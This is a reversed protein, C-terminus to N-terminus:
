QTISKVMFVSYGNQEGKMYAVNGKKLVVDSDNGSIREEKYYDVWENFTNIGNTISFLIRMGNMEEVIGNFGSNSQSALGIETIHGNQNLFATVYLNNSLQVQYEPIGNTTMLKENMIELQGRNFYESEIIITPDNSAINFVRKFEEFSYFLYPVTSVEEVPEPDYYGEDKDTLVPIDTLRNYQIDSFGGEGEGIHLIAGKKYQFVHFYEYNSSGSITTVSIELVGDKNLDKFHVTGYEQSITSGSVHTGDVISMFIRGDEDQDIDIVENFGDNDLDMEQELKFEGSWEVVPPISGNYFKDAIVQLLEKNGSERASLLIDEKEAEDMYDLILKLAGANGKVMVDQLLQSLESKTWDPGMTEFVLDVMEAQNYNLALDLCEMGELSKVCERDINVEDFASLYETAKKLDGTRIYEAFLDSDREVTEVSSSKSCSIILLSCIVITFVKQVIGRM